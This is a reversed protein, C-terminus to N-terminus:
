GIITCTEDAGDRRIVWGDNVSGPGTYNTVGAAPTTVWGGNNRIVETGPENSWTVLVGGGSAVVTCTGPTPTPTGGGGGGTTCFEDVGDRRIVWGDNVSGPGTYNTVGAAPTTVWGGNNRIVETGPENSWTVLVGGGSAVVTCTGPTPTPTGGGGGGTTCFEDVGSRRIHWGDDVSGPGSYTLTGPPPTTVWGNGNRLVENGPEDFWTVLVGGDSAVVTCTGGPGPTPTGGGGGGGTSCNIDQFPDSFNPGRLRATITDGSNASITTSNGTVTRM